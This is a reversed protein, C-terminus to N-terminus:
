WLEKGAVPGWDTEDHLKDPTVGSLLQDLDYVPLTAQTVPKIILMSEEIFIDVESNPQLRLEDAVVKPIRVSLSNGWKQVKQRM